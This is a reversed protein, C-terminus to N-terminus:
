APCITGSKKEDRNEFTKEQFIQGGPSGAGRGARLCPMNCCVAGAEKGAPGSGDPDGSLSKRAVLFAPVAAGRRAAGCILVWFPCPRLM